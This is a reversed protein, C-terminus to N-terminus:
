KDKGAALETCLAEFAIRESYSAFSYSYREENWYLYLWPGSDGSETNETVKEVTGGQLCQLFASWEQQTLVVTGSVTIDNETLPWHTGKRTEHYFLHNGESKYFRYRQYDPPYSSAAATYVFETIDQLAINRGVVKTRSGTLLLVPVAIAAALGLIVWHVKRKEKRGSNKRSESKM